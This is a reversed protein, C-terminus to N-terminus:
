PVPQLAAGNADEALRVAEGTAPETRWIEIRNSAGEAVQRAVLLATGDPVWGILWTLGGGSDTVQPVTGRDLHWAFVERVDGEVLADFALQSGDPSWALEQGPSSINTVEARRGGSALDLIRVFPRCGDAGGCGDALVAVRTGDPSVSPYSSGLAADGDLAVPEGGAPDLLWLASRGEPEGQPVIGVVLGGDATWDMGALAAAGAPLPVEISEGSEADQVRLDLPEMGLVAVRRSDRSWRYSAAQGSRGYEDGDAHVFLLANADDPLVAAAVLTTGDPSWRPGFAPGRDDIVARGSGDAAAFVLGANTALVLISRSAPAQQGRALLVSGVLAAGIVVLALLGLVLAVRVGSLRAPHLREDDPIV